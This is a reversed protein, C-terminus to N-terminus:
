WTARSRTGSKRPERAAAAQRVLPARYDTGDPRELVMQTDNVCIGIADGPELRLPDLTGYPDGSSQSTFLRDGLQVSVVFSRRQQEGNRGAAALGDPDGGPRITITEPTVTESVTEARRVAGQGCRYLSQASAPTHCIVTAALAAGHLLRNMDQSRAAAAQDAPMESRSM